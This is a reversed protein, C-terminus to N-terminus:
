IEDHDGLKLKAIVEETSYNENEGGEYIIEDSSKDTELKAIVEENTYDESKANEGYIDKCIADKITINDGIDGM